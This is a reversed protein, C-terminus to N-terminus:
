CLDLSHFWRSCTNRSKATERSYSVERLEAEERWVFLFGIDQLQTQRKLDEIKLQHLTPATKRSHGEEGKRVCDEKWSWTQPTSSGKGWLERLALNLRSAWNIVLNWELEFVLTLMKESSLRECVTVSYNLCKSRNPEWKRYKHNLWRIGWHERWSMQVGSVWSSSFFM